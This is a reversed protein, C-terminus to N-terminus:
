TGTSVHETSEIVSVIDEVVNCLQDYTYLYISDRFPQSYVHKRRPGQFQRAKTIQSELSWIKEEWLDINNAIVGRVFIYKTRRRNRLKAQSDSLALSTSRGRLKDLLIMLKSFLEIRQVEEDKSCVLDILMSVSFDWHLHSHEPKLFKFFHKIDEIDSYRACHFGVNRRNFAECDELERAFPCQTHIEDQPRVPPKLHEQIVSLQRCHRIPVEMQCEMLELYEQPPKCRGHMNLTLAKPCRFFIRPNTTLLWRQKTIGVTTPRFLVLVERVEGSRLQFPKTDFVFVEEETNFLTNNYAFFDSREWNFNLLRQGNNEIRMITRLSHEYPNCIFMRELMPSFEPSYRCYTTGNILVSLRTTMTGVTKIPLSNRKPNEISQMNDASTSLSSITHMSQCGFVTNHWRNEGVVTLEKLDPCFKILNRIAKFNCVSEKNEDGLMEIWNQLKQMLDASSSELISRIAQRKEGDFNFLIDQPNKGTSQCLRRQLARRQRLMNKWYQLRRDVFVESSRLTTESNVQSDSQEYHGNYQQIIEDVLQTAFVNRNELVENSSSTGVADNFDGIQRDM